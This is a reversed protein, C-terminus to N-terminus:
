LEGVVNIIKIKAKPIEIEKDSVRLTVFDDNFSKLIGSYQRKSQFTGDIKVNVKKSIADNLHKDTFLTRDIGPSSVELYYAEEIPDEVDLVESVARSVKECDELTIPNEGEIFIRLYYESSEKVYQLHYLKLGLGEVIPLLLLTLRNILSINEM